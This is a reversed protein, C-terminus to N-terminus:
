RADLWEMLEDAPLAPSWLFGQAFPCRYSQLAVRQADSEVGVAITVIQLSRALATIARVVVADRRHTTIDRVASVDIKVADVTFRTLHAFSSNGVGFDDIILRVGITRLETLAARSRAPDGTLALETFELALQEPPVGHSALATRVLGPLAPDALQRASINVSMVLPHASRLANWEALQRVTRDITWAGLRLILNTDEAVPLFQDPTLLGLRPHEWRLLAEVGVVRGTQLEVAPQYVLRLQDGAVAHHLGAVLENRWQSERRMGADFVEYRSRGHQKARYMATDADSLLTTASEGDGGTVYAIGISVGVFYEVGGVVVPHSVADILREAVRVADDASNLADCCVAFEDGGIRAATDGERLVGAVVQAVKRLVEDGAHHGATDNVPKFGDLDAFLVAARGHGARDRRRLVQEVRDLFLVRNPLGTLSDHLAQHAFTQDLEARLLLEEDRHAQVTERERLRVTATVDVAHVLVGEVRGDEDLVPQYTFDLFMEATDPVVLRVETGVHPEGTRLVSDLLEIFGQARVWPFADGVTMGVVDRGGAVDRRYRANTFEFVHNPGRTYAVLAPLEDVADVLPQLSGWRWGLSLAGTPSSRGPGHESM